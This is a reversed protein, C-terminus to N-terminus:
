FLRRFRKKSRVITYYIHSIEDINATSGKRFPRIFVGMKGLSKVYAIEEPDDDVLVDGSM